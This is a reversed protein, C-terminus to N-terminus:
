SLCRQQSPLFHFNIRCKNEGMEVPSCKYSLGRTPFVTFHGKAGYPLSADHPHQHYSRPEHSSRFGRVNAPPPPSPFQSLGPLETQCCCLCFGLKPDLPWEEENHSSRYSDRLARVIGDQRHCATVATYMPTYGYNDTAELLSTANIGEPQQSVLWQVIDQRGHLCAVHLLTLGHEDTISAYQHARLQLRERPGLGTSSSAYSLAQDIVARPVQTQGGTWRRPQHTSSTLGAEEWLVLYALKTRSEIPSM